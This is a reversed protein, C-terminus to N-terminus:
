REIDIKNSETDDQVSRTPIPAWLKNSAEVSEKKYNEVDVEDRM